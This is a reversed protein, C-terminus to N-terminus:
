LSKYFTFQTKLLSYGLQQYFRHAEKRLANSRVLLTDSNQLRAWQEGQQLLSRGIGLNRYEAQVILGHVVAQQGVVLTDSIGVHIWGVVPEASHQAVYIAHDPHPILRQLRQQMEAPSTPYGLLGALETIRDVDELAAVRILVAQHKSM